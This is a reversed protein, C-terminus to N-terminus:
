SKKYIKLIWIKLKHQMLKFSTFKFTMEVQFVAIRKRIKETQIKEQKPWVQGQCTILKSLQIKSRSYKNRYSNAYTITMSFYGYMKLFNMFDDTASTSIM